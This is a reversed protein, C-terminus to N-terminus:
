VISDSISEQTYIPSNIKDLSIKRVCSKKNIGQLNSSEPTFTRDEEMLNKSANLLSRDIQDQDDFTKTKVCAKRKAKDMVNPYTMNIGLSEDIKSIISCMSNNLENQTIFKNVLIEKSNKIDDYFELSSIIEKDISNNSRTVEKQRNVQPIQNPYSSSKGTSSFKFSKYENIAITNKDKTDDQKEKSCCNKIILYFFKVILTFLSDM